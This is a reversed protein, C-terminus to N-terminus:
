YSSSLGPGAHPIMNVFRLYAEEWDETPQPEYVVPSFSARVIARAEELDRASGLAIIQLLLNGIATAEIPGALVPRRTADATWQCLLQNRSGGGVVHIAPIHWGLLCELREIVWRYKLVLSELICRVVDAQSEPVPQRTETCYSRIREPINGPALFRPDDPDILSRLPPASEALHMLSEYDWSQGQTVWTRRTEQLLWLGMVNKLLRYTGNVGGEYTFNNAMVENTILRTRVEVGVLSWTGSSIYAEQPSDFPVAAVASGTDHSAPAIVQTQSLGLSEKLEPELLGLVTGPPIVAPFIQSPIGLRHLLDYAWKKEESDYCQTTTAITFECAQVGSLWFHFLDPITLFTSAIQLQPDQRRALAYLQYLTNIPMFQIGTRHYIEEPPIRRFVEAMMGDTRRDRYHVPNGLLRGQADLLAFDVGWADVGVSALDGSVVQAARRLSEKMEAFLRLVDWYLTDRVQVPVNPFRHIEEITLREGDFRGLVARGSEAGLDLALMWM